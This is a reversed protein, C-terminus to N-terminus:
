QEIKTYIYNYQKRKQYPRSPLQKFEVVYGHKTLENKVKDIVTHLGEQSIDVRMLGKHIAILEDINLNNM